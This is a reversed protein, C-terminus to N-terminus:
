PLPEASVPLWNCFRCFINQLIFGDFDTM